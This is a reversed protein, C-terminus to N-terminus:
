QVRNYARQMQSTVRPVGGVAGQTLRSVARFARLLVRRRGSCVEPIHERAAPLGLRSGGMPLVLVSCNSM